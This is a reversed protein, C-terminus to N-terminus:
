LYVWLGVVWCVEWSCTCVLAVRFLVGGFLVVYACGFFVSVFDFYIWGVWFGCVDYLM